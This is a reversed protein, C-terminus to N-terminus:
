FDSCKELTKSSNEDFMTIIFTLCNENDPLYIQRQMIIELNVSLHFVPYSILTASSTMKKLTLNDSIVLQKM